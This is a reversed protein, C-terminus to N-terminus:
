YEKRRAYGIYEKNGSRGNYWLQWTDRLVVAPKYVADNDWRGREPSIIPNNVKRSWNIGDKSDAVCIRATDINQYGIYYMIYESPSLKKVDCGGVKCSDYKNSSKELVPHAYKNWSIGDESEAYCLVDPEFLEGASYWMKYILEDEDWLVCPNMVSQKEHLLDPRLVPTHSLRDFNYGDESVAIGIQSGKANQGTYWMLWKGNNFCVSARNVKEEWGSNMSPTLAKGRNVWHIGDKSICVDIGNSKRESVYMRYVGDSYFVYPDFVSGTQENGYVPKNSKRWEGNTPPFDYRKRKNSIYEIKRRVKKLFVAM